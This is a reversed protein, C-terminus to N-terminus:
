YRCIGSSVFCGVIGIQGKAETHSGSWDRHPKKELIIQEPEAARDYDSGDSHGAVVVLAEPDMKNLKEILERVLM